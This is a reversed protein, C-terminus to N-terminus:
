VLGRTLCQGSGAWPMTNATVHLINKMGETHRSTAVVLQICISQITQMDDVHPKQLHSILKFKQSQTATVEATYLLHPFNYIDQQSQLISSPHFFDLTRNVACHTEWPEQSASCLDETSSINM